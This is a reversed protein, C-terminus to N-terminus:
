SKEKKKSFFSANQQVRFQKQLDNQWLSIHDEILEGQTKQEVKDYNLIQDQVQHKTVPLGVILRLRGDQDQSFGYARQGLPKQFLEQRLSPPIVFPHKEGEGNRNLTVVRVDMNHSLGWKEFEQSSQTGLSKGLSHAAKEQIKLRWIKELKGLAEQYSLLRSPIVKRVHVVYSIDGHSELPGPSGEPIGFSSDIM